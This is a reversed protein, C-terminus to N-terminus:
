WITIPICPAEIYHSRYLCHQSDKSCTEKCKPERENTTELGVGIVYAFFLIIELSQKELTIM